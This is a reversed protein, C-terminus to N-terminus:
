RFARWAWTTTSGSLIRMTAVQRDLAEAILQFSGCLVDITLAQIGPRLLVTSGSIAQDSYEEVITLVHKEVRFGCMQFQNAISATPRNETSNQTYLTVKRQGNAQRCISRM